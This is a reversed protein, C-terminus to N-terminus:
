TMYLILRAISIWVNGPSGTKIHHVCASDPRGDRDSSCFLWTSTLKCNQFM